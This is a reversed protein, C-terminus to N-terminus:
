IRKKGTLPEPVAFGRPKSLWQQCDPCVPTLDTGANEREPLHSRCYVCVTVSAEENPRSQAPGNRM